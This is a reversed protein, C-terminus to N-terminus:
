RYIKRMKDRIKKPSLERFYYLKSRKIKKPSDLIDVRSIKPSNIPYVKEVGINQIISRVMFTAGPENGHKRSIVVGEFPSEREKDGEKIREWVKVRAGPKIKSVIEKSLM